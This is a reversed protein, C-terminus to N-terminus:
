DDGDLNVLDEDLKQEDLKILPTHSRDSKDMVGILEPQIPSISGQQLTKQCHKIFAHFASIMRELHFVLDQVIHYLPEIYSFLSQCRGRKNDLLQLKILSDSRM